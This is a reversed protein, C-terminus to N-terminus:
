NKKNIEKGELGKIIHYRVQGSVSRENDKAEKKLQAYLQEDMRVQIKIEKKIM